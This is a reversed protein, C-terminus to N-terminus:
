GSVATRGGTGNTLAGLAIRTRQAGSTADDGEPPNPEIPVLLEADIEPPLIESIKDFAEPTRALDLAQQQTIIRMQLMMQIAELKIKFREARQKQVFSTNRKLEFVVTAGNGAERLIQTFATTIIEEIITQFGDTFTTWAEMQQDANTSLANGESLGFLVPYQQLGQIILRKYVSEMMEIGDLNRRSMAGIIDIDVERGFVYQSAKQADKFKAVIDAEIREVEAALESGELGVDFLQKRDITALQYPYAQTEIMQRVAKMMGLFSVMPNVASGVMSRGYPKDDLPNMPHYQVNPSDIPIFEGRQEEGRVWHQGREPTERRVFRVNLPDNVSIDVFQSNEFLTEIYIAGKLYGAAVMKNIKISLSEGLEVMQDVANLLISEATPDDEVVGLTWQTSVNMRVDALARAMEPSAEVLVSLIDSFSMTALQAETFSKLKWDADETPAVVATFGASLPEDVDRTLRTKSAVHAFRPASKIPNGFQDLLM